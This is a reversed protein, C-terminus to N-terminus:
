RSLGIPSDTHALTISERLSHWQEGQRRQLAFEATNRGCHRCAYLSCVSRIISNPFRAFSGCATHREIAGAVNGAKLAATVDATAVLLDESQKTYRVQKGKLKMRWSCRVCYVESRLYSYVALGGVAFGLVEIATTIYGFHGLTPSPPTLGMLRVTTSRVSIDLFSLFSMTDGLKGLAARVTLYTLYHILLLTGLSAALVNPLLLKGPRRQYMQYGLYYGSAAAWGSLFAGIPVIFWLTVKHFAFHFRVTVFWLLVGTLLSTILGCACAFSDAFPSSPAPRKLDGISAPSQESRIQAM